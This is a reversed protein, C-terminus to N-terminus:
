GLPSFIFKIFYILWLGQCGKNIKGWSSLGDTCGDEGPSEAWEGKNKKRVWIGSQAIEQGLLEMSAYEELKIRRM